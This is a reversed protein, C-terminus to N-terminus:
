GVAWGFLWMGVCRYAPYQLLDALVTEQQRESIHLFVPLSEVAQVGAGFTVCLLSEGEADREAGLWGGWGRSGGVDGATGQEVEGM